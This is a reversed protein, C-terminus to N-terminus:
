RQANTRCRAPVPRSRAYKEGASRRRGAVDDDQAILGGNDLAAVVTVVALAGVHDGSVSGFTM